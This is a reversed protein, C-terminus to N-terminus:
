YRSVELVGYAADEDEINGTGFKWFLGPKM